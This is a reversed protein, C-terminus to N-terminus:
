ILINLWDELKVKQKSEEKELYSWKIDIDSFVGQIGTVECNNRDGDHYYTLSYPSIRLSSIYTKYKDDIKVRSYLESSFNSRAFHTNEELWMKFFEYTINSKGDEYFIFNKVRTDHMVNEEIYKYIADIVEIVDEPYKFTEDIKIGMASCFIYTSDATFKNVKKDNDIRELLYNDILEKTSPIPLNKNKKSLELRYAKYENILRLVKSNPTDKVIKIHNIGDEMVEYGININPYKSYAYNEDYDCFWTENPNFRALTITDKDENIDIVYKQNM